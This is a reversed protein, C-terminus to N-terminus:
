TLLYILNHPNIFELWIICFGSVKKLVMLQIRMVSQCSRVKPYGKNLDQRPIQLTMCVEVLGRRTRTSAKRVKEALTTGTVERYRLPRKLRALAEKLVKM